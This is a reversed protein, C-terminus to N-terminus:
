QCYTKPIQRGDPYTIGWSASHFRLVSLEAEKRGLLHQAARNAFAFRGTADTEIIAVPVANLVNFVRKELQDIKREAKFLQDQFQKVQHAKLAALLSAGLCLALLLASIVSLALIWEQDNQFYM